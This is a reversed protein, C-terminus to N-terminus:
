ARRMSVVNPRPAVLGTVHRAWRNLAERREPMMEAKNYIGAVGARTGSIHNVVLEIVDPRIGLEAMGTVCTRRLDHLRWPELEFKQGREKRAIELMAADLRDKTKSWGSVPSDGTTSFVFKGEGAPILDRAMSPLPVVHPKGNKTRAGPLHWSVDDHLEDRTMGGVEDRRGGTLLLLKLAPAFPRPADPVRPADAQETAQWFWRIEDASLVRDRTKAAAPSPVNLCPNTQIRRQRLCWGFFSGLAVFLGRARLESLGRTRAGIGPVGVRRAEDVALWVDQATITGVDKDGWRQVLGGKRITPEGGSLAYDLGLLRAMERWNRTEPKAYEGVYGQVAAVYSSTKREEIEVRQRLKRVRHEAIVDQGLMRRRHVDAALLRAAQLSLPQGIQPESKLERGSMDAPGLTLKGPRGNPRRFRMQYSKHGSTEIILFLSRAGGDPIRRRAPGATLKRVAADTLTAVM